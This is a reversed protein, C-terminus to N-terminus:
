YKNRMQELTNNMNSSFKYSGSSYDGMPKYKNGVLPYVMNALEKLKMNFNKSYGNISVECDMVGELYRAYVDEEFPIVCYKVNEKDFLETMFSMAPDNYFALGGIITKPTLGRVRVEKNIVVRIKEPKLIDKAKLDRLFATMPQITLIDMTQVVYIEQSVGFYEAPTNFDCDMLIASYNQLLTSIIGDVDHLPLQDGPLATYVDLNKDVSIGNAM